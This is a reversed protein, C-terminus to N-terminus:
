PSARPATAASPSQVPKLAFAEVALALPFSELALLDKPKEEEWKKEALEKAKEANEELLYKGEVFEDDVEEAPISTPTILVLEWYSTSLNM